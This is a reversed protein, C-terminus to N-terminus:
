GNCQDNRLPCRLGTEVAEVRTPDFRNVRRATPRLLVAPLVQEAIGRQRDTDLSGRAELTLHTIRFGLRTAAVQERQWVLASRQKELTEVAGFAVAASPQKSTYAAMLEKIQAAIGDLTAETGPDPATTPADLREEALQGVVMAAVVADTGPRCVCHV